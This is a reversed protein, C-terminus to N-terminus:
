RRVSIHKEEGAILRKINDKHKLFIIVGMMVAMVAQPWLLAEDAYFVMSLVVVAVTATLSSVSVIKTILTMIAFVALGICIAIPCCVAFIGVSVAVGKGGKFNFFLPFVHGIMCLVGCAYAGYIGVGYFADSHTGIYEFLYHGVACSIFGKLVDCVFTLIGPLAGASRMVNTTGANGSGMNRVDQKTFAATFIVAFNVSGLLYAFILTILATLVM